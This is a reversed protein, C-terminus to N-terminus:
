RSTNGKWMHNKAFTWLQDFETQHNLQVAIMMGYSQGESRVDNDAIDEVYAEGAGPGTYFITNANSPNFLQSWAATLKTDSAAQTQGLLGIFLNAYATPATCGSGPETATASSAIGGAGSTTSGGAATGGTANGGGAGSTTSGGAATGGTANGGGASSGGSANGSANGSGGAATGGIAASGAAGSAGANSSGGSSPAAGATTGSGGSASDTHVGAGSEGASGSAPSQAGSCGFLGLCVTAVFRQRLETRV